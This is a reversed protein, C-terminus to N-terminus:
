TTVSRILASGWGLHSTLKINKQIPRLFTYISFLYFGLMFGGGLSSHFLYSKQKIIILRIPLCQIGISLSCSNRYCFSM